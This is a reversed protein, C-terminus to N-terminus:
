RDDGGMESAYKEVIARVKEEVQAPNLMQRTLDDVYERFDIRTFDIKMFEDVYFGRCNPSKGSGWGLGVQPRGQEHIIKALVSDFCCFVDKSQICAGFVKISCRDGVKVCVGKARKCALIKENATCKTMEDYMSYLSYITYAWSIFNFASLFAAAMYEAAVTASNTVLTQGASEIVFTGGNNLISPAGSSFISGIASSAFDFAGNKIANEVALQGAVNALENKAYHMAAAEALAIAADDWGLEKALNRFSCSSTAEDKNECCNRFSTRIGAKNCDDSAGPFIYIQGSCGVPQGTNGDAKLQCMDEQPCECYGKGWIEECLEMSYFGPAPKKYYCGTGGGDLEVCTCFHSGYRQICTTIDMLIPRGLMPNLEAPTYAALATSATFCILTVLAALRSINSGSLM